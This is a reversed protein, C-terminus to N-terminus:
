SKGNYCIKLLYALGKKDRNCIERDEVERDEAERNGAEGNSAIKGAGAERNM